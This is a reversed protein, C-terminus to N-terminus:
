EKAQAFRRLREMGQKLHEDDTAFSIRVFGEGRNGFLPGPLVGVHEREMLQHM